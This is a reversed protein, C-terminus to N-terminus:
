ALRFFRLAKSIVGHWQRRSEGELLVSMATLSEALKDLTAQLRDTRDGLETLHLETRGFRQDLSELDALRRETKALRQDVALISLGNRIELATVVCVILTAM